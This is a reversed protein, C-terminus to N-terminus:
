SRQMRGRLWTELQQQHRTPLALQSLNRHLQRESTRRHKGFCLLNGEGPVRYLDVAPFVEALADVIAREEERTTAINVILVGAQRLRGRVCEFWDAEQFDIPMGHAAFTDMFIIDYRRRVRAIYERADEVFIQLQPGEAAALDFFARAVHHVEPSIEVADVHVAPVVGRIAKVYLGAGLGLMLVTSPNSAYVAGLTALPIYGMRIDDLDNKRVRGQEPADPAGFCLSRYRRDEVVFVSADASSYLIRKGM